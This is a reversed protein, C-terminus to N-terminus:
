GIEPGSAKRGDRENEALVTRVATEDDGILPISGAQQLASYQFRL